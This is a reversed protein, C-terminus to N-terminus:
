YGTGWPSVAYDRMFLPGRLDGKFVLSKRLRKAVFGRWDGKPPSEKSHWWISCKAVTAWLPSRQRDWIQMYETHGWRSKIPKVTSLRSTAAYVLKTGPERDGFRHPSDLRRLIKRAIRLNM